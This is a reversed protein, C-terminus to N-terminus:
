ASYNGYKGSNWLVTCGPFEQLSNCLTYIGTFWFKKSVRYLFQTSIVLSPNLEGQLAEFKGRCM